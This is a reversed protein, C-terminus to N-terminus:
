ILRLHLIYDRTEIHTFNHQESRAIISVHQEPDAELLLDGGPRLHRAAQPILEYILKLGGDPAYLADAPEHRLEASTQWTQDVYPLNALIFDLPEIQGSLLDRKEITVNAGLQDANKTAITLAAESTDSLIVRFNPRELAATIGLCGSGTGVDIVTKPQIDSATIDLFLEIMAESEPRPVLVGPSVIFRRGFFEKYGVIYATPVRDKRLELRAYAIDIRRPDITEDLHAHLYTRSKRLTEALILEADLRASAIGLDKLEKTALKLWTSIDM